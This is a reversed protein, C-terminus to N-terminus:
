LGLMLSYTTQSSIMTVGLEIPPGQIQKIEFIHVSQIADSLQYIAELTREESWHQPMDEEQLFNKLTKDYKPLLINIKGRYEYSAYFPIISSHRLGRHIRLENRAEPSNILEKRILKVRPIQWYHKFIGELATRRVNLTDQNQKRELHCLPM